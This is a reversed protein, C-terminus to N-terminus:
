TKYASLGWPRGEGFLFESEVIGDGGREGGVEKMFDKFVEIHDHVITRFVIHM